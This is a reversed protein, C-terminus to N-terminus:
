IMYWRPYIDIDCDWFYIIAEQGAPLVIHKFNNEFSEVVADNADRVVSGASAACEHIEADYTLVNGIYTDHSTAHKLRLNCIVSDRENCITLQSDTDGMRAVILPYADFETPNKLHFENGYSLEESNLTRKVLGDHLYKQPKCSFRLDFSGSRNLTGVSPEIPTLARAMRFYDPHYSDHLEYYKDTHANWWSTFSDWKDDFRRAIWAPYEVEVNKWSGVYTILSGNRGPVEATEVNRQPTTWTGSGSLNVGYDQSCKGDLVFFGM